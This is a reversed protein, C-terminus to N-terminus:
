KVQARFRITFSSNAAMTGQPMLRISNVALDYGAAPSYVYTSGGNNSYTLNGSSFTLGSAGAVFEYNTTLPGTDDIDGNYFSVQGPLVDDLIISNADVPSGGTNSVTLTYLVDSGPANFRQPDGATTVFPSATKALALAPMPCFSVDHISFSQQALLGLLSSYPGNGFRVQVTTVPQAFSATVNGYNQTNSASGNGYVEKNGTNPSVATSPGIVAVGPATQGPNTTNNNGFPSTIAPVLAGSPGTGNIKIWDTYNLLSSDIDLITFQVDRVAVGFAFNVALVDVDSDISSQLTGFGVALGLTKETTSALGGTNTVGIYPTNVFGAASGFNFGVLASTEGGFSLTVSTSAGAGNTVTYVQPVSSSITGTTQSDWDLKFANTADCSALAQAPCLSGAALCCVIARVIRVQIASAGLM